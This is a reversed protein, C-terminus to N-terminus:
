NAFFKAVLKRITSINRLTCDPLDLQKTEPLGWVNSESIKTTCIWFFERGIVRFSDYETRVSELMSATKADLKNRMFAVNIAAGRSEHDDFMRASAITELDDSRRVFVDVEYGLTQQLANSAASEILSQKRKKSEFVVNGSAIFTAVNQHGLEEFVKALVPMKVRRKGVNIGSLFAAYKM